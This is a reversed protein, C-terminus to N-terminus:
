KKGGDNNKSFYNKIEGKAKLFINKLIFLVIIGVVVCSIFGGLLIVPIMNSFNLNSFDFFDTNASGVLLAITVTLVICLLAVAILIIIQSFVSKKNM